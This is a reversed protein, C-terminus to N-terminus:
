KLLVALLARTRTGSCDLVADLDDETDVDLQLARLSLEVVSLGRAEGHARFRAASGPGYLPAFDAPTPVALANTTGDVAAVLTLAGREAGAALARLDSTTVCPVDANLVVVPGACGGLASAVATGQGGGPDPVVEAGAEAVVERAADDNTVVRATFSGRGADLVDGLMALALEARIDAPLRSKGGARFPIVLSAM